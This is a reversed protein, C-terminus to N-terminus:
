MFLGFGVFAFRKRLRIIVYHKEILALVLQHSVSYFVYSIPNKCVKCKPKIWKIAVSSFEVSEVIVILM